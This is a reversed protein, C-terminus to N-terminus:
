ALLCNLVHLRDSPWYTILPDSRFLSYDFTLPPLIKYGAPVIYGQNLHSSIVATESESSVRYMSM